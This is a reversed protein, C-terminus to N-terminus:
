SNGGDQRVQKWGGNLVRSGRLEVMESSGQSREWMAKSSSKNSEARGGGGRGRRSM